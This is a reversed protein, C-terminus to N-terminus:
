MFIVVDAPQMRFEHQMSSRNMDILQIMNKCRKVEEPIMYNRITYDYETQKNICVYIVDKWDDSFKKLFLYPSDYDSIVQWHGEQSLVKYEEKVLNMMKIWNIIDFKKTIDSQSGRVVDAKITSGFEYGNLTMIAKSFIAAFAYRGKQCYDTGPFCSALRVTDHSEPFSVSPYCSSSHQDIAWSKDFNWYKSSNFFYDFGCGHLSRLQDGNCGLTEALFIVETDREMAKEILFKWLCSTVQYAADCRFGDVGLQQFYSVHCNWYDWLNNRNAENDITSLDGWVVRHGDEDASPHVLNGNNWCYWEPHNKVLICENSTHNIVLDTIVKIGHAHCTTCFDSIISFDEQDSNEELFDKNIKYYDKIAYLSNSNGTELFPNVYIANFGMEKIRPVERFWDNIKSYHRPFLDYIILSDSM